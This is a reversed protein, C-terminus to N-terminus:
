LTERAHKMAAHWGQRQSEWALIALAAEPRPGFLAEFMATDAAQEDRDAATTDIDITALIPPQNLPRIHALIKQRDRKLANVAADTVRKVAEEYWGVRTKDDTLDPDETIRRFVHTFSPGRVEFGYVEQGFLSRGVVGIPEVFWIASSEIASGCELHLLM